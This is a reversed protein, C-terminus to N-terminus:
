KYLLQRDEALAHLDGKAARSHTQSAGMFLGMM